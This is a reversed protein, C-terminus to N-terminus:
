KTPDFRDNPYSAAAVEAFKRSVGDSHSAKAKRETM